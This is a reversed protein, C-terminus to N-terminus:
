HWLLLMWVIFISFLAHYVSRAKSSQQPIHTIKLVVDFKIVNHQIKYVEGLRSEFECRKHYYASVAYTTMFGVVM